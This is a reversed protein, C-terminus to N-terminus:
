SYVLTPFLERGNEFGSHDETLNRVRNSCHWSGNIQEIDFLYYGASPKKGNQRASASPAGAIPIPGTPGDLLTIMQRHNHGHLVLEASRRQFVAQLEAANWLGKRYSNNGPLPPHHILVVRFYDEAGLRQLLTSLAALQRQGVSGGAILPWTPQASSLGIVAIKGFLRLWPFPKDGPTLFAQAASNSRMYDRWLGLSKAYPLRVYADHNGPVVSMREPTAVTGLWAAAQRFEEALSINVIDGTLAIHDPNQAQMDDTLTKLIDMSHIRHRNKTWSLYGSLRKGMLETWGPEPLPGIHPDTFHALTFM